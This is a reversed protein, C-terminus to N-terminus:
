YPLDSNVDSSIEPNNDIEELPIPQYYPGSDPANPNLQTLYTPHRLLFSLLAPEGTFEMVYEHYLDQMTPSSIDSLGVRSRVQNIRGASSMTGGSAGNLKAEALGLYVEALRLERFNIGSNAGGPPSNTKYYVHFKKWSPRNDQQSAELNGAGSCNGQPNVSTTYVSNGNNFTDCAFYFTHTARPDSLDSVQASTEPGDSTEFSSVGMEELVSRSAVVNRWELFGYEQNRFTRTTGDGGQQNWAGGNSSQAHQVEFISESNNETEEKFNDFYSGVLELTGGGPAEGNDVVQIFADHAEQYEEQRLHSRGKVAMAATATARGINADEAFSWPLNNIAFNLDSEIQDNIESPDGLPKGGVASPAETFFPVGRSQEGSEGYLAMLKEYYFARLFRAEAKLRTRMGEEIQADPVGDANNIALNARKIGQYLGTWHLTLGSNSGDGHTWNVMDGIWAETQGGGPEVVGPLTDYVFFKRRKHMGNTNLNSYVAHVATALQQGTSYYNERTPENPNKQNLNFDCSLFLAACAFVSVLILTAKRMM